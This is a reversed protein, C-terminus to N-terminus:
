EIADFISPKSKHGLLQSLADCQDDHKSNPFRLLETEFDLWWHPDNDPFLCSGNEILHSVGHLRSEKDHEPKIERPRINHDKRLTQIIQTGSAKDEILVDIRRKYHGKAWDHIKVIKKILEPFELKERYVDLIYNNNNTDRLVTICVSYDNNEKIKCATDWSQIISKIKIEGSEIRKWLEEPMIM